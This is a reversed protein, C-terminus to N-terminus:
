YGIPCAYLTGAVTLDEKMLAFRLVGVLAGDVFVPGGSLGKVPAGAGAAAQDSFLQLVSCGELEGLYNTVSGVQVMGDRPNADPFGYTEWDIKSKELIGLPVPQAPPTEECKLLAWDSIRDWYVGHLTAKTTFNPFTLTIEGPYLAEPPDQRRDAIVHFATLVLGDGVLCGTGRSISKGAGDLRLGGGSEGAGDLRLGGGSEGAQMVDIRAIADRIRQNMKGCWIRVSITSM